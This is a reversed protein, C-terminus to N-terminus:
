LNPPIQNPHSLEKRVQLATLPDDTIIGNVGAQIFRIVEDRDNVTWIYTKRGKKAQHHLFATTSDQYYPNIAEPSLGEMLFSRAWWGSRGPMALIACPVEPLIRHARFLNLPHFSSFLVHEELHFHKVLECARPTLNDQPSAYNTLEINILLRRGVTELVEALTPIREGAFQSSFFTGADLSKLEALTLDRIRGSGNTTRDVTEDHIVMVQGDASLKADLEIGDAGQEVALLFASLTNEPAYASAGRHGIVLPSTATRFHNM